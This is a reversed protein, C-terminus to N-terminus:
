TDPEIIYTEKAKENFLQYTIGKDIPLIKDVMFEFNKSAEVFQIQDIAKKIEHADEYESDKIEQKIPKGVKGIYCATAATFETLHSVLDKLNDNLDDSKEM